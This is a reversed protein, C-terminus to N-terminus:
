ENQMYELAENLDTFFRLDCLPDGPYPNPNVLKEIILSERWPCYSFSYFTGPRSKEICLELIENLKNQM